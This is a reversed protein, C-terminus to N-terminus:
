KIAHITGPCRKVAPIWVDPVITKREINNAVSAYNRRFGVGDFEYKSATVNESHEHRQKVVSTWARAVIIRTTSLKM